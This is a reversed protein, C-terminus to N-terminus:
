LLILKASLYIIQSVILNYVMELAFQSHSLEVGMFFLQSLQLLFTAAGTIILLDLYRSGTLRPLATFVLSVIVALLIIEQYWYPYWLLCFLTALLLGIYAFKLSGRFVYFFFSALLMFILPIDPVIGSIELVHLDSLYFLFVTFIIIFVVKRIM